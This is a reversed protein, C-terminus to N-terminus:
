ASRTRHGFQRSASRSEMIVGRGFIQSVLPRIIRANMLFNLTRSSKRALSFPMPIFGSGYAFRPPVYPPRYSRRQRVVVPKLSQSSIVWRPLFVERRTETFVAVEASSLITPSGGDRSVVNSIYEQVAKLTARQHPDLPLVLFTYLLEEALRILNKRGVPPFEALADPPSPTSFVHHM